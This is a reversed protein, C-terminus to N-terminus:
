GDTNTWRHRPRDRSVTVRGPAALGCRTRRSRGADPARRGRGLTGTAAALEAFMCDAPLLHTGDEDALERVAQIKPNLDARWQKQEEEGILAVGAEVVGHIPLLFPEILIRETGAEAPPALLRDYGAAFDETPIVYGDLDLTHWGM